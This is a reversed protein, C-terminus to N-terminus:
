SSTLYEAIATDGEYEEFKGKVQQYKDEGKALLCLVDGEKMNNYVKQIATKRDEIIEKDCTIFSAMENCIDTVNEFAPDDATLFIKKCYKSAVEPLHKRRIYAKNGPAGFLAYINKWENEKKIAEFFREFSIKNHAYDVIITKGDKRYINMRGAVTTKEIGSKIYKDEINLEKAIIIACTANEVNFDGVMQTRYTSISENNVVDFYIYGNGKRINTYYVDVNNKSKENGYVIIKKANQAADKVADFYDTARNIVVEKCNKIFELKSNLYDSFNPHENPSIHDESINLFAGIDFKMDLIRKTKYSQSSVEMTLYKLNNKAAENIYRQLEIAEPTSLHSEESRTKTYTEITSLLGTREGVFENFINHIYTATTTKGKTGTIGVMTLNEYAKDFFVEAVVVMARRIDKVLILGASYTEYEKESIVLFAGNNVADKIYEEKFNAGKVFFASDISCEKSNYTIDKIVNNGKEHYVKTKLVGVKEELLNILEKQTM